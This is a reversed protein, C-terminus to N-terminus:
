TAWSMPPVAEGYPGEFGATGIPFSNGAVDDCEAGIEAVAVDGVRVPIEFGRRDQHPLDRLGTLREM